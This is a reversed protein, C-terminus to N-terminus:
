KDRDDIVFGLSLVKELLSVTSLLSGDADNIIRLFSDREPEDNMIAVLASTDIAIM